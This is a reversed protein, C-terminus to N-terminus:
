RGACMAAYNRGEPDGYDVPLGLEFWGQLRVRGSADSAGGYGGIVHYVATFGAALMAEAARASRAGSQCGLIIPTDHDYNIELVRLFDRNPVMGMPERNLVPINVAAIPHGNRFEPESRVDVYVYGEEKDLLEKAEQPTIDKYSMPYTEQRVFDGRSTYLTDYSRPRDKLFDFWCTHSCFHMGNRELFDESYPKSCVPCQSSALREDLELRQAQRNDILRNLYYAGRWGLLIFLAFELLSLGGFVLFLVAGAGALWFSLCHPCRFLKGLVDSYASLSRRLGETHSSQRLLRTLLAVAIALLLIQVAAVM